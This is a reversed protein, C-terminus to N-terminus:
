EGGGFYATFGEDTYSVRATGSKFPPTPTASIDWVFDGNMLNSTPNATELFEVTPDGILAGRGKLSDLEEQEDILISQQLSLDMTSDIQTGHRRQFGNTIYMLMRINVDFIYRAVGDSGYEYYATHPGWLVWLGGWFVATTIGKSNLENGDQQDFGENESSVGFYQATCMIEKNSPSEMPISDHSNDVRQMTVTAQTSLHYAKGAYQVQPWYVKSFGNNYGNSDAWEEAKKLTDIAAKAKSDYIPLDANVFADWHGNLKQVASIMAKYVDPDESWFPAALINLVANFMTYLKSLAQLGTRKGSATVSGIIDSKTVLSPDVETFSAEVTGTIPDADSLSEIVVAGKTYNYDLSYDAGLVKDSLAIFTIKDRNPIDKLAEMLYAKVNAVAQSKWVGGDAAVLKFVPAGGRGESVRFVFDSAPQEVELFTRYPILNVPNPVLVNDKTTIGTKMVAQQTTGNDSFTAEQTNVINSALMTVAERDDSEKFCSQMSILFSEQDYERGYEFRPLLANVEFLTERDREALLGSYLLVKTENVVQIIMRDRLEERNEKIYDVLSTLTTASIPAAKEPADYRVLDKTCYTKGNINVTKPDEAKVALGTIFAIAEKIGEM